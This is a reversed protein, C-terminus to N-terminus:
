FGLWPEVISDPKALICGCALGKKPHVVPNDSCPCGSPLYRRVFVILLLQVTHVCAGADASGVGVEVVGFVIGAVLLAGGDCFSAVVSVAAFPLLCFM